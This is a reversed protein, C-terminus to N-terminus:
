KSLVVAAEHAAEIGKGLDDCFKGADPFQKCAEVRAAEVAAAVKNVDTAIMPVSACGTLCFCVAFIYSKM